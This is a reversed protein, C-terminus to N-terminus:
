TPSPSPPTSGGFVPPLPLDPFEWHDSVLQRGWGNRWPIEITLKKGGFVVCTACCNRWREAPGLHCLAEGDRVWSWPICHSRAYMANGYFLTSSLLNVLSPPTM